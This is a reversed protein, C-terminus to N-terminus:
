TIRRLSAVQPRVAVPHMHRPVRALKDVRALAPQSPVADSRDRLRPRELDALLGMHAFAEHLVRDAEGRVM